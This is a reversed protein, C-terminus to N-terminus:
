LLAQYQELSNCFILFLMKKYLRHYQGDLAGHLEESMDCHTTEVASTQTFIDTSFQVCMCLLAFCRITLFTIFMFQM